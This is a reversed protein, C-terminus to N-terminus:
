PAITNQTQANDRAAYYSIHDITPEEVTRERIINM